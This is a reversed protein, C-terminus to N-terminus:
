TTKSRIRSYVWDFDTKFNELASGAPVILLLSCFIRGPLQMV